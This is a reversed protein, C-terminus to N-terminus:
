EYDRVCKFGPLYPAGTPNIRLYRFTARKGVYMEPNEFALQRWAFNHGAAPPCGFEVGADTIMTFKGLKGTLKGKGEVIGTITGEQDKFVKLKQLDYSRKNSYPTNRRLMAGEYDMEMCTNYFQDLQDQNNVEVTPVLDVTEWECYDHVLKLIGQRESFTKEPAATFFIDFVNLKIEAASDILDQESPKTRKVLSIIKEFGRAYKHAYLEGDLIASPSRDFYDKLEDTIHGTTFFPKHNRSFAGDKTIYCRVGDLKPQAFLGDEFNVKKDNFDKALTVEFKNM